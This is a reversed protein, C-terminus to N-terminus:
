FIRLSAKPHHATPTADTADLGPWAPTLAAGRIDSEVADPEVIQPEEGGGSEQGGAKGTLETAPRSPCALGAM